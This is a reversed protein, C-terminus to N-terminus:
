SLINAMDAPIKLSTKAHCLFTELFYNTGMAASLDVVGIGQQAKKAALAKAAGAAADQPHHVPRVALRSPLGNPGDPDNKQDGRCEHHCHQLLLPIHVIM